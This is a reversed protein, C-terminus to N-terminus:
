NKTSKWKEGKGKERRVRHSIWEAFFHMSKLKTACQSAALPLYSKTGMFM